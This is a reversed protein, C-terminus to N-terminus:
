EPVARGDPGHRHTADLGAPEGVVLDGEELGEGILGHDGDLVHPQEGLQLSPRMLQRLGDVCQRREALHPLGDAGGEVQLRHEARDDRPGGLKGVRIRPHNVLVVLLALDELWAGGLTEFVVDHLREHRRGNPFSLARRPTQRLHAFRDLQCIKAGQAFLNRNAVAQYPGPIARQKRHGEHALVM